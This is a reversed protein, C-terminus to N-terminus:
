IVLLFPDVLITDYSFKMSHLNELFSQWLLIECKLITHVVYKVTLYSVGGSIAIFCVKEKTSVTYFAAM